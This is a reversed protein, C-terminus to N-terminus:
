FPLPFTLLLPLKAGEFKGSLTLELSAEGRKNNRGRGRLPFPILPIPNAKVISLRM